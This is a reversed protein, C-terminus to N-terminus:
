LRSGTDCRRRRRAGCLALAAAGLWLMALSAPEPVTRLLLNDFYMGSGSGTSLLGLRTIDAYDNRFGLGEVSHLLSGGADLVRLDWTNRDPGSLHVALDFHYWDGPVASGLSLSTGTGDGNGDYAYFQNTGTFGFYATVDENFHSGSDQILKSSGLYFATTGNITMPRADVSFHVTGADAVTDLDQYAAMFGGSSSARLQFVQGHEPSGIDAGNVIMARDTSGYSTNHRWGDQGIATQNATYTPSEFPNRYLIRPPVVAAPSVFFNDFYADDDTSRGYQGVYVYDVSNASAGALSCEWGIQRWRAYRADTASRIFYDVTRAKGATSLDVDARVEYWNGADFPGLAQYGGSYYMIQGPNADNGFILTVAKTALSTFGAKGMTLAGGLEGSTGVYRQHYTILKDSTDSFSPIPQVAAYYSSSVHSTLHLAHDGTPGGPRDDIRIADPSPEGAAAVTWAGAGSGPNPRTTVGFGEFGADLVVNAPCPLAVVLVVLLVIAPAILRKM